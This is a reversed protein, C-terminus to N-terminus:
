GLLLNLAGITLASFVGNVVVVVSLTWKVHETTLRAAFTELAQVTAIETNSPPTLNMLTDAEEEGLAQRAAKYLALRQPESVAM